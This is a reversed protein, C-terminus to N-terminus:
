FCTQSTTITVASFLWSLVQLPPVFFLREESFTDPYLLGRGLDKYRIEDQTQQSYGYLPSLDLYSTTNNISPDVADTRFLSHTVLSAFAFTLSSNQGPHAKFDRAKLITDFVLGPDPLVNAPLPHKSQVSRAYPLGAKGLWPIIPNNGSGDASRFRYSPGIYTPPPHTLTNYLVAIAENNLTDQLKGPPLKTITSLATTFFGKRDDIADKNALFDLIGNAATPDVVPGRSIAGQVGSILSYLRSHSDTSANKEGASLAELDYHGDPATPLPRSSLYALEADSVLITQTLDIPLKVGM